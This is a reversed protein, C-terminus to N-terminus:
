LIRRPISPVLKTQCSVASVKRLSFSGSALATKSAKRVPNWHFVTLFVLSIAGAMVSAASVSGEGSINFLRGISKSLSCSTSAFGSILVKVRKKKRSPM